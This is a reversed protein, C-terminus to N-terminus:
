HFSQTIAAPSAGHASDPTTLWVYLVLLPVGVVVLWYGVKRM